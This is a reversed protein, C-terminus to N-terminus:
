KTYWYININFTHAYSNYLKINKYQYYLVIIENISM